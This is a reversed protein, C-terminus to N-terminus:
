GMDRECRVHGPQPTWFYGNQTASMLSGRLVEGWETKSLFGLDEERPKDPLLRMLVLTKVEEPAVKLSGAIYRQEKESGRGQGAAVIALFLREPVDPEGSLDTYVMFPRTRPGQSM